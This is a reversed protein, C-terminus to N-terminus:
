QRVNLHCKSNADRKIGGPNSALTLSLHGHACNVWDKALPPAAPPNASAPANLSLGAAGLRYIRQIEDDSLAREFLAVEDIVGNFQRGDAEASNGIRLSTAAPQILKVEETTAVIEGNVYFKSQKPGRVM